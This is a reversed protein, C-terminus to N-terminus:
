PPTQQPFPPTDQDCCKSTGRASISNSMRWPHVQDAACLSAKFTQL